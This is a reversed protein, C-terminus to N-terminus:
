ACYSLEVTLDNGLTGNKETENLLGKRFYSWRTRTLARKEGRPPFRWPFDDHALSEEVKYIPVIISVLPLTM